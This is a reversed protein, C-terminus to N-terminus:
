SETVMNEKGTAARTLCSAAPHTVQGSAWRDMWIQPWRLPPFSHIREGYDRSQPLFLWSETEKHLTQEPGLGELSLSLLWCRVM